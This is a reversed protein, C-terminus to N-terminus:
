VTKESARWNKFEEDEGRRALSEVGREIAKDIRRGVTRMFFGDRTGPRRGTVIDWGAEHKRPEWMPSHRGGTHSKHYRAPGVEGEDYYHDLELELEDRADSEAPSRLPFTAELESLEDFYTRPSRLRLDQHENGEVRANLAVDHRWQDLRLLPVDDNEPDARRRIKLEVWVALEFILNRLLYTTLALIFIFVPVLVFATHRVLFLANATIAMATRYHYQSIFLLCSGMHHYLYTYIDYGQAQM